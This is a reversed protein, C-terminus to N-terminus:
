KRFECDFLLQKNNYLYIINLILKESFEWQPVCMKKNEFLASKWLFLKIRFIM